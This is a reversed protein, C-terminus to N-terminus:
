RALQQDILSKVLRDDEVGVPSLLCVDECCDVTHSGEMAGVLWRIFFKCECEEEGNCVSKHDKKIHLKCVLLVRDVMNFVHWEPFM